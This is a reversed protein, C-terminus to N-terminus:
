HRHQSRMMADSILEVRDLWGLGLDLESKLRLPITPVNKGIINVFEVEYDIPDGWDWEAVKFQLDGYVEVRVGDVKLEAYHSRNYIPLMKGGFDADRSLRKESAAPALTMYDALLMCIEETGEKTTVIELYYTRVNVGKIIEGADGGLAWKAQADKLMTGIKVTARLLPAPLIVIEDPRPVRSGLVPLDSRHREGPINLM